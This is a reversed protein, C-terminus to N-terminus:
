QYTEELLPCLPFFLCILKQMVLSFMLLIFHSNVTHSFKNALSVESLPKIELICLFECSEVGPLYFFGILFPWFVWISLEGLLVYLLGLSM